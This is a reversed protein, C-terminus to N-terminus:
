DWTNYIVLHFTKTTRKQKRNKEDYHTFRDYTHRAMLSNRYNVYRDPDIFNFLLGFSKLPESFLDM